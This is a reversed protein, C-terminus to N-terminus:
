EPAPPFLIAPRSLIETCDPILEMLSSSTFYIPGPPQRVLFHHAVGKESEMCPYTGDVTKYYISLKANVSEIKIHLVCIKVDEAGVLHYCIHSAEM